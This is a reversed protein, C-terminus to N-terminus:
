LRSVVEYVLRSLWATLLVVVGACLAPLLDPSLQRKVRVAALAALLLNSLIAGEEHIICGWNFTADYWLPVLVGLLFAYAGLVPGALLGKWPHELDRFVATLLLMCCAFAALLGWCAMIFEHIGASTLGSWSYLLQEM